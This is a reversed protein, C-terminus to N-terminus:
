FSHVVTFAGQPTIKFATSSTVGFFNTDSGEVVAAFPGGGDGGGTFTYLNTFAGQPSVAFVTGAIFAGGQATTGYFNGDSGEIVGADVSNGLTATFHHLITVTVNTDARGPACLAAILIIALFLRTTM